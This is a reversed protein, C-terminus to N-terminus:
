RPIEITKAIIDIVNEQTIGEMEREPSLIVRHALVPGLVKKIDEPIVFDRGEIAAMAKSANM